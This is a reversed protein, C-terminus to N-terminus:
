LLGGAIVRSVKDEQIMTCRRKSEAVLRQRTQRALAVANPRPVAAGRGFATQEDRSRDKVATRATRRRLISRQSAATFVLWAGRHNRPSIPLLVPFPYRWSAPHLAIRHPSPRRSRDARIPASRMPLDVLCRVCSITDSSWISARWADNRAAVSRERCAGRLRDEGAVSQQPSLGESLVHFGRRSAQVDPTAGSM